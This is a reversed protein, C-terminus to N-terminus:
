AYSTLRVDATSQRNLTEEAAQLLMGPSFVPCADCAEQFYNKFHEIMETSDDEEGIVKFCSLAYRIRSTTFFIPTSACDHQNKERARRSQDVDDFFFM